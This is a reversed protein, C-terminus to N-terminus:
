SRTTENVVFVQAAGKANTYQGGTSCHGVSSCSVQSTYGDGGVNLAGTGPTEEASGWTGGTQNIVFSQTDGSSNTYYGSAACNGASPCSVSGVAAGPNSQDLAATGPTEEASGWTGDTQSVVFAQNLYSADEYFGGATCNGVSPCSVSSIEALNSVNLAAIGPVEQANGWTGDTENVVFAETAPTSDTYEGGASCNGASPCSVSNIEAYGGGNLAATGPVEQATGWTGDTETVVMAQATAIGDTSSSAYYGGASCNGGATCSVSEIAAYGGANLAASGPVEQATGWTGDTETVVFAQWHGSSDTYYGGASCDGVAGCSVSLVAAGAGTGFNLAATGPVEQATGWTGGTENVLLAQQHGSSDDYYGGASCDGVAPCSMADLDARGDANLTASGPVEKAPFWTGGKENAYFAQQHGSSDRYFGGMYCTGVAVCSVAGVGAKGGKNLTASGPVEEASGWSPVSSAPRGITGTTSPVRTGAAAASAGSFLTSCLAVAATVIAARRRM